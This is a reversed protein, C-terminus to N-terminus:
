RAPQLAMPLSVAKLGRQQLAALLEPLVSLVSPPQAPHHAGDHLLLIDGAALDRLLRQLVREPNNAVGDYGRRTWSVYGLNRRALVDDLLPSRLGAPARFYAPARGIINQIAGQAKDVERKLYAMGFFPFAYAHRYSHNEVSHGRRAIERLLNPHAEAKRGIVFFSARAQYADLLDLVQPTILPDPGDDFTLAIEGRACASSPLRTLSPGLVKGRPWLVAASLLFHNLVVAALLWPSLAPSLLWFLLVLAHLAFSFQFAWPLAWHRKGPIAPTPANRNVVGGGLFKGAGALSAM